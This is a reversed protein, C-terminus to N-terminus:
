KVNPVVTIIVRRNARLREGAKTQFSLAQQGVGNAQIASEPIGKNILIKKVAEARKQSLVLNYKESGVMDAHGVVKYTLGKKGKWNSLISDIVKQNALNVRAKDFGFFLTYDVPKPIDIPKAALKVRSRAKMAAVPPPVDPGKLREVLRIVASELGADLRLGSSKSEMQIRVNNTGNKLTYAGVGGVLTASAGMGTYDGTIDDAKELNYVKGVSKEQSIGIGLLSYGDISIAYVSGDKLTLKGKGSKFGLLFGSDDHDLTISASPAAMQAMAPAWALNLAFGFLAFQLM